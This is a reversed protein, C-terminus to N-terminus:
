AHAAMKLFDYKTAWEAPVDVPLDLLMQAFAKGQPDMRLSATGGGGLVNHLVFNFANLGPLEYRDVDGALIHGFYRAVVDETLAARLFPMFEPRRAIIGINAHDGKDGSRGWALEVLPVTLMPGDPVFREAGEVEVPGLAAPDFGGSSPIEVPFEKEDTVVKVAVNAKDVLCSFLRVVPQPRPRGGFFGTLGPVLGTACPAIERAFLEVGEKRPHRVALKLVVERPEYKQANVGYTDEAGLVEASTEDYDPLGHERFLARTRAFVVDAMKRAKRVAAGGGLMVSTTARYGQAYTACVKYTSTPPLGKAGTVRVRNDGDQTMTVGTFDCTVDPLMYARPDGIEYLMQEGVTAPSVLGGTGDPKTVLFGGDADAEVIPFGINEYDPVRDWDTFIGGTAQAGCEILHGALSGAALKDYEDDSWGFEYMLPGLTLASDVSRGTLVVQAGEALAAAIPRAGLYANMSTPQEPLPAGSDMERVDQVRLEETRGLLDDGLVVAVKLEVGAERALTQLANRCALPNIGGANTVVKVGREAIDTVLQKMVVNVFDTAYGLDPNKARARVLISMTIEALYDLILYDINGRRVLQVPGAETDGWFAAGGGIRVTRANM